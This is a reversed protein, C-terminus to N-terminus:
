SLLCLWFLLNTFSSRHLLSRFRVFLVRLTTIVYIRCYWIDIHDNVSYNLDYITIYQTSYSFSCVTLYKLTILNSDRILLLSVNQQNTTTTVQSSLKTAYLATTLRITARHSVMRKKWFKVQKDRNMCQRIWLVHLVIFAHCLWAHEQATLVVQCM